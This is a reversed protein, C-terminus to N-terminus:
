HPLPMSVTVSGGPAQRWSDGRAGTDGHRLEGECITDKEVELGTRGTAPAAQNRARTGGSGRDGM